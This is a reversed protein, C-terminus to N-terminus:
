IGGILLGAGWTEGKFGQGLRAVSEIGLSGVAGAMTKAM